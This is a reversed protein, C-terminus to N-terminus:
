PAQEELADIAKNLGSYALVVRAAASDGCGLMECLKRDYEELDILRKRLYEHGWQGAVLYKSLPDSTSRYHELMAEAPSELRDFTKQLAQARKQEDTKNASRPRRVLIDLAQVLLADLNIRAFRLSSKLSAEFDRLKAKRAQHYRESDQDKIKELDALATCCADWSRGVSEAYVSIKSLKESFQDSLQDEKLDEKLPRLLGLVLDISRQLEMDTM